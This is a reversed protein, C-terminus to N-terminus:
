HGGGNNNNNYMKDNGLHNANPNLDCRIRAIYQCLSKSRIELKKKRIQQLIISENQVQVSMFATTLSRRHDVHKM